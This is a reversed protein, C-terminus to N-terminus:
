SYDRHASLLARLFVPQVPNPVACGMDHGLGHAFQIRIGAQGDSRRNLVAEVVVEVQAHIPVPGAGEQRLVQLLNFPAHAADDAALMRKHVPLDTGVLGALQKAVFGVLQLQDLAQDFARHVLVALFGFAALDDRGVGLVGELVQAAAGVHLVRALNRNLADLQHTHGAGIPAAILM